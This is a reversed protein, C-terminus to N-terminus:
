RRWNASFRNAIQFSKELRQIMRNLAESIREFEDGTRPVPLRESLNKFTIREAARVIEDVPHLARGLLSYGALISFVILALFGLVIMWMLGSLATEIDNEPAGVEVTYTKGNGLTDPLSALRMFSGDLSEERFTTKRETVSNVPSLGTANKSAYIIENGPGTIRM